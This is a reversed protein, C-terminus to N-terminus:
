CLTHSVWALWGFYSFQPGLVSLAFARNNKLTIIWAFRMKSTMFMSWFYGFKAPAVLGTSIYTNQLLEYHAHCFPEVAGWIFPLLETQNLGDERFETRLHILVTCSSCKMDETTCSVASWTDTTWPWENRTGNHDKGRNVSSNLKTTCPIRVWASVWTLIFCYRKHSLIEEEEQQKIAPPVVIHLRTQSSM